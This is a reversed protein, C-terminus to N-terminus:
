YEKNSSVASGRNGVPSTHTRHSMINEIDNIQSVIKEKTTSPGYANAVKGAKILLWLEKEKSNLIQEDFWDVAAPANEVSGLSQGFKDYIQRRLAASGPATLAAYAQRQFGRLFRRLNESGVAKELGASPFSAGGVPFSFDFVTKNSVGNLMFHAWMAAKLNKKTTGNTIGLENAYVNFAQESAAHTWANLPQAPDLSLIQEDDSM